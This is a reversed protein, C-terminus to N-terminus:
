YVPVILSLNLILYNVFQITCILKYNKLSKLNIQNTNITQACGFNNLFVIRKICDVGDFENIHAICSIGIESILIRDCTLILKNVCTYLQLTYIINDNILEFTYCILVCIMKMDHTIMKLLIYTLTPVQIPTQYRLVM